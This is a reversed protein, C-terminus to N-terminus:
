EEKDKMYKTTYTGSYEPITITKSTSPQIEVGHGAKKLKDVAGDNINVASELYAKNGIAKIIYPSTIRQSNIQMISSGRLFIDSTGVIRQDNISIAEAGASFLDRVIKLLDLSSIETIQEDLDDTNTEKGSNDTLIVTIGEGQVETMGVTMKLQELEKQLLKATSEDSKKETQYEALKTMTEEYKEQIESYKKRWDSLETRLEEERMSEISTIDTQKVVKFQMFMVIMLALCAIGITISMVIKEKSIKNKNM